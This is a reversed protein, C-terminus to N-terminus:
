KKLLKTASSFVDNTLSHAFTDGLVDVYRQYVKFWATKIADNMEVSKPTPYMLSLRGEYHRKLLGQQELNECLRTITSPSLMMVEALEGSTIGPTKNVTMLVFAYSPALNVAAFEEEAMKTMVRALANSSFYLCKCYTDKAESM